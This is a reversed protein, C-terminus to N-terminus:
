RDEKLVNKTAANIQTALEGIPIIQGCQKDNPSTSPTSYSDYLTTDIPVEFTTDSLVTIPATQENIQQMGFGRPIIFRVIEGDLYDHAFTTTVVAKTDQTINSILRMAPQYTPSPNAYCGM